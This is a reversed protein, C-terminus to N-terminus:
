FILRVLFWIIGILILLAGVFIGRAAIGKRNEHWWEQRRSRDPATIRTVTTMTVAADQGTYRKNRKKKQKAM